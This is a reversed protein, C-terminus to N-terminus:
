SGSRTIPTGGYRMGCTRSPRMRSGQLSIFRRCIALAESDNPTLALTAEAEDLARGFDREHWLQLLSMLWHGYWQGIPPLAEDAFGENTLSLSQEYDEEPTDSWGVQNAAHFYTWGLKIRLLGSDPHLGLGEEWIERSNVTMDERTLRYFVRHGRIYYDYESLGSETKSWAAFQEAKRLEGYEGGMADVIRATVDDQLAFLDTGDRDYRQAWLHRGTTGDILQATIRINTDQRQVSGELVYRVGLEAAVEQVRTPKGKYTFSSNRAIVFIDARRSLGTIIDETIGDSFHDYGPDGSLNDFPLVAISPGDPMALIPDDHATDAPAEAVPEITVSGEDPVFYVAALVVAIVAVAAGGLAPWLWPRSGAPEPAGSKLPAAPPPASAKAGVRDGTEDISVRFVRVPRAVGKLDQEGIDDLAYLLKDRIQDRVSRSICIGGPEALTELRAAVNVGDGYIDDGDIIVDGLNIGARLLIRHSEPIDANRRAMARQIEVACQVANAVSPFETLQGDGTLKVVRGGHEDVKPGWLEKRLTKLAALTGAEDTGMLSTYGVVDSAM